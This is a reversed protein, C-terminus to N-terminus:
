SHAHRAFLRQFFNSIANGTGRAASRMAEARMQHARRTLADIEEQTPVKYDYM